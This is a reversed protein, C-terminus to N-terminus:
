KETLSNNFLLPMNNLRMEEVKNHQIELVKKYCQPNAKLLKIKKELEEGNKVYFFDYNPYIKHKTDFDNDIFTVCNALLSEAFRLTIINNNYNKDGIIITAFGTANKEIVKTADKLEQTFIPKSLGVNINKFHNEKIKGYLEVTIDKRGFFYDLYKQKRRGGRFSTGMILDVDGTNEVFNNTSLVWENFPVYKIDKIKINSKEHIQKVTEKNFAQSLIVFDNELNIENEAQYKNWKRNKILPYLQKFPMALDVLVYYLTGKYPKLFNFLADIPKNEEGGPFDILSNMVLVREFSNVDLKNYAVAVDTDVTTAITVDHGEKRLIEALRVTELINISKIGKNGRVAGKHMTTVLIRM